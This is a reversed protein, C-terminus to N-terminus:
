RIPLMMAESKYALNNIASGFPNTAWFLQWPCVEGFRLIQRLINRLPKFFDLHLYLRNRWMNLDIVISSTDIIITEVKKDRLRKRPQFLRKLFRFISKYDLNSQIKYIEDAKVDSAIGFHRKLAINENIESVLRSIDRESLDS